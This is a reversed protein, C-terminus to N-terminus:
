RIKRQWPSRLEENGRITKEMVALGLVAACLVALSAGVAPNGSLLERKLHFLTILVVVWLGIKYEKHVFFIRRADFAWQGGGRYPTLRPLLARVHNKYGNFEQEFAFALFKEEQAITKCYAAAILAFFLMGAVFARFMVLFGFIILLTGFYLPHRIFGYPGCTTLRTNKDCYGSAWLRVLVGAAAILAGPLFMRRDITCFLAAYVGFAIVALFRPKFYKVRGM